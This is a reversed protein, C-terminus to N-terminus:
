ELQLLLIIALILAGVILVTKRNDIGAGVAGGVIGGVALEGVGGAVIRGRSGFFIAKGLNQGPV